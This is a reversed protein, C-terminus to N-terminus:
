FLIKFEPNLIMKLVSITLFTGVVYHICVDCHALTQFYAFVQGIYIIIFAKNIQFILDLHNYQLLGSFPPLKFNKFKM